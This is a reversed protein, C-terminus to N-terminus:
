KWRGQRTRCGGQEVNIHKMHICTGDDVLESLMGQVGVVERYQMQYSQNGTNCQLITKKNHVYVDYPDGFSAM